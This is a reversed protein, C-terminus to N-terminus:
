QRNLNVVSWRNAIEDITSGSNRLGLTALLINRQEGRLRLHNATIM